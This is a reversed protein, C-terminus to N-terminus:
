TKTPPLVADQLLLARTPSMIIRVTVIQTHNADM